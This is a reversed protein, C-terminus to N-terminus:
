PTINRYSFICGPLYRYLIYSEKLSSSKTHPMLLCLSIRSHACVIYMYSQISFHKEFKTIKKLTVYVVNIKGYRYMAKYSSLPDPSSASGSVGFLSLLFFILFILDSFFNVESVLDATLASSSLLFLIASFCFITLHHFKWIVFCVM